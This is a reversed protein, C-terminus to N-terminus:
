TGGRHAGSRSIGEAEALSLAIGQGLAQAAASSAWCVAVPPWCVARQQKVVTCGIRRGCVRQSGEVSTVVAPRRWGLLSLCGPVGAARCSCSGCGSRGGHMRGVIFIKIGRHSQQNTQALGARRRGQQLCSGRMWVRNDCQVCM